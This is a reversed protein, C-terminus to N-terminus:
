GAAGGRANSNGSLPPRESTGSLAAKGVFDFMTVGSPLPRPRGTFRHAGVGFGADRDSLAELDFGEAAFWRCIEPVLDPEERHRTWVVSGDTACLRPCFGVVARIDDDTINGFIGCLLVLGAPVLDAYRDTRAADGVVVEVGRLGADAAAQRAFAANRPDLEVLRATVDHRRPHGALVGILDRGQGACLSVARVPGPPLRDLTARIREQVAHLRRRLASAPEDYRDHWAYWDRQTM